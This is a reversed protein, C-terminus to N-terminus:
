SAQAPHAAREIRASVYKLSVCVECFRNDVVVVDKTRKEGTEKDPWSETRELGHVFTPDGSGGSDHGHTAASGFIEVNHATPKDNVWEGEDDQVRRNVLVRCNVFPKKERTHPRKPAEALNGAFTVTTSM